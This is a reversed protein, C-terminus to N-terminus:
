DNFMQILTKFQNELIMFDSSLIINQVQVSFRDM